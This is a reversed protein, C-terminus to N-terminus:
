ADVVEAASFGFREQMTLFSKYRVRWEWYDTSGEQLTGEQFQRYFEASSMGHQQELRRLIRM